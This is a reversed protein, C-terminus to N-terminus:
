IKFELSYRMGAETKFSIKNKERTFSVSNGDFDLIEATESLNKLICDSGKASYIEAKKIKSDNWEIDVTFANKARLGKVKGKSWVAPLAPLLEIEGHYSQILMELVAGAGGLNGDIQFIKPPHLDLLSDTAFDIILHKLHHYAPEADNFRAMLCATWARSWGTHGGGEALRLDLSRRAAKWLEPTTEHTILDSPFIGYLHSLHRHGPEMEEFEENWELLQGKSGIKYEPLKNLLIKWNERDEKDVGLLESSKIAWNLSDAALMVDMTASVCISTPVNEAGKFANEPSQSPVIQITGENDEIFYSQYFAVVDKFFPYARNKLFEKNLSYEYHWWLHQALWAAGGIWVSWGYSESTARGWADTQLPFLVGRCGYVDHAAKRAHPVFREIHKILAEVTESLNGNEAQWYNMQLNIDHHYDCEWPPNIDDNWKGQLNAPLEGTASSAVLLYRSFYFYLLVLAPDDNGNKFNQIRRDTPQKPVPLDIDLDFSQTFKKYSIIHKHIIDKWIPEPSQYKDCEEAPAYAKASTGINVALIIEKTNKFVIKDNDFKYDSDAYLVRTEVRFGIGGEFQGDMILKNYLNHFYLFCKEDTVRSLKIDADFIKDSTIKVFILDSDISAIFEKKFEAGDAKYNIKVIANELDLERYYDSCEKHPISIILDGAPQYPDVRNPKETKQLGGGNTFAENARINGELYNGKLIIERIENLMHASKASERNRNEGRWLWEHNLTINEKGASGHIMGALRGTGIPLGCMFEQGSKNYWLKKM